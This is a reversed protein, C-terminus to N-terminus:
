TVRACFFNFCLLDLKSFTFLFLMSIALRLSSPGNLIIKRIYLNTYCESLVRYMCQWSTPKKMRSGFDKSGFEQRSLYEKSKVDWHIIGPPYLAHLYHLGHAVGLCINWWVHWSLAINGRTVTWSIIIFFSIYAEMPVKGCHLCQQFWYCRM